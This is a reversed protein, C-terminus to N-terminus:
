VLPWEERAIRVDAPRAPRRGYVIEDFDRALRDFRPNRLIRRAEYTRLSPRAPLRDARALLLLGARFRLRLAIELDGRREAEDALRELERPDLSREARRRAAASADARVRRRALRFAVLLALAVVTGGVIWWLVDAGGVHRALANWWDGIFGLKQGLWHLLGHLPRPLSSGHFRREGLIRHAERRAEAPSV